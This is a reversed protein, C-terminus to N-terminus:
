KHNDDHQTVTKAPNQIVAKICVIESGTDPKVPLFLGSSVTWRSQANSQELRTIFRRNYLIQPLPRITSIVSIKSINLPYALM